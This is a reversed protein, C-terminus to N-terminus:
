SPLFIYNQESKFSTNLESWPGQQSYDRAGTDQRWISKSYDLVVKAIEKEQLFRKIKKPNIFDNESLSDVVAFAFGCTLHWNRQSRTWKSLESELGDTTLLTKVNGLIKTSVDELNNKVELQFSEGSLDVPFKFTPLLSKILRHYSVDSDYQGLELLRLKTLIEIKKQCEEILNSAMYINPFQSISRTRKVDQFTGVLPVQYHSLEMLNKYLAMVKDSNVVWNGIIRSRIERSWSTDGTLRDMLERFVRTLQSLRDYNWVGNDHSRYGPSLSKETKMIYHQEPKIASYEDSSGREIGNRLSREKRSFGSVLSEEFSKFDTSGSNKWHRMARKSYPEEIVKRMDDDIEKSTNDLNGFDTKAKLQLWSPRKEILNIFSVVVLKALEQDQSFILFKEQNIFGNRLLLDVVKFTYRWTNIWDLEHYEWKMLEAETNYKTMLEKVGDLVSGAVAQLQKEAELRSRQTSPFELAPLLLQVIKWYSENSDYDGLKLLRLKAFIRVKRQFEQIISSATYINPNQKQDTNWKIFDFMQNIHSEYPLLEMLDENLATIKEMQPTLSHEEALKDILRGFTTSPGVVYVPFETKYDSLLTKSKRIAHKRREPIQNKQSSPRDLGGRISGEKVSIQELLDSSRHGREMAISQDYAGGPHVSSLWLSLLILRTIM